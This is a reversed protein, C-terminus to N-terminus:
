KIKKASGTAHTHSVGASAELHDADVGVRLRLIWKLKMLRVGHCIRKITKIYNVCRRRALAVANRPM